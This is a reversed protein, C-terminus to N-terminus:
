PLSTAVSPDLDPELFILRFAMRSTSMGLVHRIMMSGSAGIANLNCLLKSHAKWNIRGLLRSVHVGVM